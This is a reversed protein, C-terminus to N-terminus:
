NWSKLEEENEVFVERGEELEESAELVLPVFGSIGGSVAYYGNEKEGSLVARIERAIYRPEGNKEEMRICYLTKGYLEEPLAPLYIQGEGTLFTRQELYGIRVVPLSAMYRKKAFLTLLLMMLYFLGSIAFVVGKKRM